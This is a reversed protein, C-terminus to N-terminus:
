RLMEARMQDRLAVRPQHDVAIARRVRWTRDRADAFRGDDGAVFTEGALRRCQPAPRHEIGVMAADTLDDVPPQAIGDRRHQYRQVTKSSDIRPDRPGPM